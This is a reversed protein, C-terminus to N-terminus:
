AVLAANLKAEEFRLRSLLRKRRAFLVPSLSARFRNLREDCIWVKFAGLQVNWDKDNGAIDERSVVITCFSFTTSSVLEKAFVAHNADVDRSKLAFVSCSDLPGCIVCRAETLTSLDPLSSNQCRRKISYSSQVPLHRGRRDISYDM